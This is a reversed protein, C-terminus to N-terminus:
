PVRMLLPEHILLTDSDHSRKVPIGIHLIYGPDPFPELLITFSIKHPDGQAYEIPANEIMIVDRNFEPTDKFPFVLESHTISSVAHPEGM